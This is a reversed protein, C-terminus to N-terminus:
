RAATSATQCYKETRHDAGEPAESFESAAKENSFNMQELEM